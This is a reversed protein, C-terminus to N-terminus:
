SVVGRSKRQSGVHHDLVNRFHRISVEDDQLVIHSKARSSVGATVHEHASTDEQLAERILCKFYEQQLRERASVAVRFHFRIEWLTRDVALPWAYHTIYSTSNGVRYLTLVMNPFLNFHDIDGVRQEVSFGPTDDGRMFLAIKLPTLKQSQGLRASWSNHSGYLAFNSFRSQSSPDKGFVTGLIRQHQFPLHYLENQTDLVVKWNAREEITYAQFLEMESFPCGNLRDVVGGLYERLNDAPNADLHIFIFGEWVDTQVPTLGRDKKDFDHFYAEDPVHLLEGKSSYAWGHLRCRLANQCAGRGEPVLRNSRHSCANHFGRVVGDASRIVLISAGCIMIDRVFYDGEEPIEEVRGVNLWCRRFVRDRELAFHEESVYPETSLPATGLHPYKKAWHHMERKGASM